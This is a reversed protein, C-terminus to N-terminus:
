EINKFDLQKFAHDSPPFDAKLVDFHLTLLKKTLCYGLSIIAFIGIIAAYIRKKHM